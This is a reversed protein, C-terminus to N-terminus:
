KIPKIEFANLVAKRIRFESIPIRFSPFRTANTKVNHLDAASRRCRIAQPALGLAGHRFSNELGPPAVDFAVGSRTAGGPSKSPSDYKNRPSAGWAIQHRGEPVLFHAVENM